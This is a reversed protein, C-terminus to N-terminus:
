ICLKKIYKIFDCNKNISYNENVLEKASFWFTVGAMQLTHIFKNPYIEPTCWDADLVFIWHYDQDNSIIEGDKGLTTRHLLSRAIQERARDTIHKHGGEFGGGASKSEIYVKKGDKGQLIFDTYRHMNTFGLSYLLNKDVCVSSKGHKMDSTFTLQADELLLAIAAEPPNNFSRDTTIGDIQGKKIKELFKGKSAGKARLSCECMFYAIKNQIEDMSNIKLNSLPILVNELFDGRLNDKPINKIDSSLVVNDAIRKENAWFDVNKLDSSLANTIQQEIDGKWAFIVGDFFLELTTLVYSCKYKKIQEETSWGEEKGGIFLLSRVNPNHIKHLYLEGLAQHLKNEISHGRKTPNAQTVSIITKINDLLQSSEIVFDENINPGGSGWLFENMLGDITEHKSTKKIDHFFAYASSIKRFREPSFYPVRQQTKYDEDKIFNLNKLANDLLEEASAGNLNNNLGANSGELYSGTYKAM